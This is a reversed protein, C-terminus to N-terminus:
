SPWRGPLPIVDGCLCMPIRPGGAGGGAECYRACPWSGLVEGELPFWENEAGRGGM